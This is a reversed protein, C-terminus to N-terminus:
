GLHIFAKSDAITRAGSRDSVGKKKNGALWGAIM